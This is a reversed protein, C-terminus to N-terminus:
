RRRVAKLVEETSYVLMHTVAGTDDKVFEYTGLLRPSFATESLPTMPVKGKGLLDIFLEDGSATITFVMNSNRSDVANGSRVEYIGAYSALIEPSVVVKKEESTRGVLHPHDKENEACVYELLETDAAFVGGASVTWPKAYAGPDDLTVQLDLHGFDRRRYRETVRLAESHPHGFADLWTKDNFGATEVVLTDRDWHGTSYGLWAPEPDKPLPRGDTYIQRHADASEFLMVILGPSQVIKDPESVLFAFPIGLPLCNDAPNSGPPRNRMLEAAEPRLPSEEPKFDALINLAYKSITDAEMGPVQLQNVDDGYIRKMEAMPTPEVHWVGSLDPKGNPGRPARASLNPKGDRTRPTGPAPYNLWQAQACGSVAALFLYWPWHQKM